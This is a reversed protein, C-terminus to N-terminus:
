YTDVAFALVFQSNLLYLTIKTMKFYRILGLLKLFIALWTGFACFINLINFLSDIGAFITDIRLFRRFLHYIKPFLMLLPVQFAFLHILKPYPYQHNLYFTQPAEPHFAQTLTPFVRVEIIVANFCLKWLYNMCM